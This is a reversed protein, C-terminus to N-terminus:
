LDEVFAQRPTRELLNGFCGCSVQAEEGRLLQVGVVGVFFLFTANTLFLLGPRRDGALLAAGLGAEFAILLLGAVHAATAPLGILAQVEGAFLPPDLAKAYAAVLLVAGLVRAALSGVLTGAGAM